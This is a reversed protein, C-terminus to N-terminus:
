TILRSAPFTPTMGGTMKIERFNLPKFETKKAYYKKVSLGDCSQKLKEYKNLLGKNKRLAQEFKISNKWGSNNKNIIFIEIKIDDIYKVFRVRELPYVSGPKGLHKTLKDLYRNFDKITTPIYLDIEGQGSIKLATSGRHSIRVNGLIKKLDKKIIRFVDKTKPNYPIVKIIDTNSLHNIWIKQEKTLM